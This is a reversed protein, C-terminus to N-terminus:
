FTKFFYFVVHKEGDEASKSQIKDFGIWKPLKHNLDPNLSGPNLDELLRSISTFIQFMLDFAHFYSILFSCTGSYNVVLM